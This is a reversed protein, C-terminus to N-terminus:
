SPPLFEISDVVPQSVAAAANFVATDVPASVEVIVTQGNVDLVSWRTRTDTSYGLTRKPPSGTDTLLMVKPDGPNFGPCSGGWTPKVTFEIQKGSFGGITVAKPASVSLGPHAVVYGVIDDVSHGVGAKPVPDCRTATQDAIAVMALVQITASAGPGTTSALQYTRNIDATNRWGDPVRFRFPVVFESSTHTGAALPGSCTTDLNCTAASDSSAASPRPAPEFAFSQVIPMTAAALADFSSGAASDVAVVVNHGEGADLAIVRIREGPGIGWYAGEGPLADVILPVTVVGNSFPCTKRVGAAVAVDIWGGDMGGVHVPQGGAGVLNPDSALDALVAASTGAVGPDPTETCADDKAARHMDTFVRVTDKEPGGNWHLSFDLTGGEDTSWGAPVAFTLLGINLNAVYTGPLMTGTGPRFATASAVPSSSRSASPSADTPRPTPSVGASPFRPGLILLSGVVVAVLAAVATALKLSPTMSISRWPRLRWAPRQPQHAIRAAVDDIVRDAIQTPGDALWADLLREIDRGSTM